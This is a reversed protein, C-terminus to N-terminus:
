SIDRQKTSNTLKQAPVNKEFTTYYKRVASITEWSGKFGIPIIFADGAQFEESHGDDGTLRVKGELIYCFEESDKQEFTWKGETSSWVGANFHGTPDVYINNVMAKPEGTVINEPTYEGQTRHSYPLRVIRKM